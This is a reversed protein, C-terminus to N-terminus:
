DECKINIKGRFFGLFRSNFILGCYDACEILAPVM